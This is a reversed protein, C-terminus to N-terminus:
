SDHPLDYFNLDLKPYTVKPVRMMKAENDDGLPQKGHGAIEFLHKGLLENM